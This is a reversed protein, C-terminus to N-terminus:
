CIVSNENESNNILLQKNHNCNLFKSLEFILIIIFTSNLEEPLNASTLPLLEPMPTVVSWHKSRDPTLTTTVPGLHSAVLTVYTAFSHRLRLIVPGLTISTNVSTM